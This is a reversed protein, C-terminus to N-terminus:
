GCGAGGSPELAPGPSDPRTEDAPPQDTVAVSPAKTDGDTAPEPVTVPVPRPRDRRLEAPTVNWSRSMLSTMHSHSSFGTARAIEDLPDDTDTILGRAQVLRSAIVFQHPSQGTTKQFARSFHSPSLQAVEALRDLSLKRSLNAHIHDNVRRWAAPSLGGHFQRLPRTQLTSHNRLLHIGFLTALADLYEAHALGPRELEHRMRKALVLAERDTSGLALPHLEFSDDGFEAGALRRLRDDDFAVLLNEKDVDWRAFLDSSQPFIELAGAPALGVQKRDSNLAVQRGPQATFLVLAFHVPTVFGIQNPGTHTRTVAAGDREFKPGWEDPIGGLLDSKRNKM